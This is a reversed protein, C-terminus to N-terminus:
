GNRLKRLETKLRQNEQLVAEMKSNSDGLHQQIIANQKVKDVENTESRRRHFEIETRLKEVEAQLADNAECVGKYMRNLRDYSIEETM